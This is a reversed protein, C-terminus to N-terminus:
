ESSFPPSFTNIKMDFVKWTSEITWFQFVTLPGALLKQEHKCSAHPNHCEQYAPSCKGASMKKSPYGKLLYWGVCGLRGDGLGPAQTIFRMSGFCGICTNEQMGAVSPDCLVPVAFM